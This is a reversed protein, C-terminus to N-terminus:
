ETCNTLQFTGTGMCNYVQGSSGGFDTMVPCNFSGWVRGPEIPQSTFTTYNVTCGRGLYNNGNEGFSINVGTQSGTSTWPLTGLLNFTGALGTSITATVDFGDGTQVVSCAVSAPVTVGLPDSGNAVPSNPLGTTVINASAGMLDYVGTMSQTNCAGEVMDQDQVFTTVYATPEPTSTGDDVDAGADVADEEGGEVEAKEAAPSDKAVDAGVDRETVDLDGGGGENGAEGIKAASDGEETDPLGGTFDVARGCSATLSLVVITWRM